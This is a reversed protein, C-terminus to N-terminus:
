NCEAEDHCDELASKANGLWTQAAYLYNIWPLNGTCYTDSNDIALDTKDIAMQLDSLCDHIYGCYCSDNALPVAHDSAMDARTYAILIYGDVQDGYWLFDCYSDDYNSRASGLYSYAQNIKFLVNDCTPCLPNELLAIQSEKNNDKWIGKFQDFQVPTLISKLNHHINEMLGNFGPTVTERNDKWSEMNLQIVSDVEVRTEEPLTDMWKNLNEAESAGIVPSVFWCFLVVVFISFFIPSVKKM